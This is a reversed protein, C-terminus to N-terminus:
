LLTGLAETQFLGPSRTSLPRFLLLTIIGKRRNCYPLRRDYRLHERDLCVQLEKARGARLLLVLRSTATPTSEGDDPGELEDNGLVQVCPRQLSKCTM